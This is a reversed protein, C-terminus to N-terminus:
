DVQREALDIPREPLEFTSGTFSRNQRKLKAIWVEIGDLVM